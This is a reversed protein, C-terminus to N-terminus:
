LSLAIDRSHGFFEMEPKFLEMEPKFNAIKFGGNSM